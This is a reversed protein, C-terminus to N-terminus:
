FIACRKNNCLRISNSVTVSSGNYLPRMDDEYDNESTWNVDEDIYNIRTSFSVHDVETAKFLRAVTDQQQQQQVQPPQENNYDSLSDHSSYNCPAILHRTSQRKVERTRRRKNVKYSLRYM